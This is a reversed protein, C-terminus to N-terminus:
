PRYQKGFFGVRKRGESSPNQPNLNRPSHNRCSGLGIWDVWWRGVPTHHRSPGPDARGAPRATGSDGTGARPGQGAEPTAPAPPLSIAVALLSMASAAPTERRRGDPGREMPRCPPGRPREVLSSGGRGCGPPRRPRPAQCGPSPSPCPSRHPCHRPLWAAVGM